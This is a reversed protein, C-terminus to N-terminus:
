GHMLFIIKDKLVNLDEMNNIEGLVRHLDLKM